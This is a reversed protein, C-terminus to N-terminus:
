EKKTKDPMNFWHKDEMEGHMMMIGLDTMRHGTDDLCLIKARDKYLGIAIQPDVVTDKMGLFVTRPTGADVETHPVFAPIRYKSMDPQLSPNWLVLDVPIIRAISEAFWGGLSSAGIIPHQGDVTAEMIQDHMVRLCFKSHPDYELVTLSPDLEKLQHGTTSDRGPYGPIYFTKYLPKTM